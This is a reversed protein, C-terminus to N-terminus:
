QEDFGNSFITDGVLKVLGFRYNGAADHSALSGIYLSGDPAVGVSTAQEGFDQAPPVTSSVVLKGGVGFDADLQGQPTLRVLTAAFRGSDVASSGAVVFRGQGDEVVKFPLDAFNGGLDFPIVKGGDDGFGTDLSGDPALKFVGYDLNTLAPLLAMAGVGVISGDALAIADVGEYAHYSPVGPDFVLIGGNGFSADLQGGAELRAFVWLAVSGGPSALGILVIRGDPLVNVDLALAVPMTPGFDITATGSGNFSLDRSGDPNLRVVTMRQTTADVIARGAAVIKGDAQLACRVAMDDRSGAAGLDFAVTAKGDASFQPDPTGSAQLRAVAFDAGGGSPDGAAAGCLVIRGNPQLLVSSAVDDNTGGLDFPLITQGQTGFNTDLTGNPHLRLVGFDTSPSPVTTNDVSGSVILKGDPQVALDVFNVFGLELNLAPSFAIQERGQDGFSTVYDGDRAHAACAISAALASLAIRQINM